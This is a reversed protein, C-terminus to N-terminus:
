STEGKLINIIELPEPRNTYDPNIQSDIIRSNKGVIYRAPMPLQWDTNGNAKELDIGFKRYLQILDEPLDFVLGFAAAVKNGTDSLVPFTLNLKETVMKAFEPVQPSVAILSAGLHRIDSHLAQLAELEM